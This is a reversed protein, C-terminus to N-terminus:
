SEEPTYHLIKIQEPAYEGVRTYYIRIDSSTPIRTRIAIYPEGTEPDVVDFEDSTQWILSVGGAFPNDAVAAKTLAGGENIPMVDHREAEGKLAEELTLYKPKGESIQFVLSLMGAHETGGLWGIGTV